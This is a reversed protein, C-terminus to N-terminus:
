HLLGISSMATASPNGYFVYLPITSNALIVQIKIWITTTTTNLGDVIYYDLFSAGAGCDVSFRLDSGDANMQGAAILAQTNLTLRVQYDQLSVGSNETVHYAQSYTWGPPQAYASFSLATAIILVLLLRIHTYNEKM